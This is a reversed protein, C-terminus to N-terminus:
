IWAKLECSEGEVLLLPPGGIFNKRCGLDLELDLDRENRGSPNGM